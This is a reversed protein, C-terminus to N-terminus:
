TDHAQPKAVKTVRTGDGGERIGQQREEADLTSFFGYDVGRGEIPRATSSE